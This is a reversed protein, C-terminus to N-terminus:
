KTVAPPISDPESRLGKRQLYLGYAQMGAFCVGVLIGAIVGSNPMPWAQILLYSLACVGIGDVIPFIRSRTWKAVTPKPDKRVLWWEVFSWAAGVLLWSCVFAMTHWPHRSLSWVFLGAASAMLLCIITVMVVHRATVRGNKEM